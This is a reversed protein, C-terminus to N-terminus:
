IGIYPTVRAKLSNLKLNPIRLFGQIPNWLKELSNSLLDKQSTVKLVNVILRKFSMNLKGAGIIRASKNFSIGFKFNLFNTCVTDYIGWKKDYTTNAPIILSNNDGV